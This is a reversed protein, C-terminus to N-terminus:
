ESSEPKEARTVVVRQPYPIEIGEADFAKKIRRRLERGVDWQKLPMTRIRVKLVMASDGFADIGLVELADLVFPGFKPDAQLEAATKRLVDAVRDPDEDYAVSIDIVYYSFDKSRNALTTIAGNPFVHVTGEIDRLVITRLNIAEVLGGTGNIAAVDGVRVQDELILFFGSIVDRVLTQAGFGVALGVIGAGALVPAIDIRLERLVMLVAIASVMATTVNRIVSGLTRARKARELAELNTGLNLEHEFRRVVLATMRIVAYALLAILLIRLGSEFTWSALTRLRLGLRPHLGTAELIPFVLTAFVLLFTVGGIFRLPGKVLASSATLTDGLMRGLAAAALKRTLRAALWAVLLAPVVALALAQWQVPGDFIRGWM